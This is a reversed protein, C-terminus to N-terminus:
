IIKHKAVFCAYAVLANYVTRHSQNGYNERRGGFDYDKVISKIDKALEIWTLREWRCVKEIATIYSHVTSPKGDSTEEKYGCDVLFGYFKVGFEGGTLKYERVPREVKKHTCVLCFEEDDEIWNLECKPCIKM